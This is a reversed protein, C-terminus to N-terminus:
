PTTFNVGSSLTSNGVLDWVKVVLTHNGASLSSVPMTATWNYWYSSRWGVGDV